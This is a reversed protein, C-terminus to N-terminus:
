QVSEKMSKKHSHYKESVIELDEVPVGEEIGHDFMVDYHTVIGEYVSEHMSNHDNAIHNALQISGGQKAIQKHVESRHTRKPPLKIEHTKGTKEHHIAYHNNTSKPDDSEINHAHSGGHSGVHIPDSGGPGGRGGYKKNIKDTVHSKEGAGYSEHTSVNSVDGTEQLTHMGPICQGDGWQESKVHNACDHKLAKEASASNVDEAEALAQQDEVVEVEEEPEKAEPKMGMLINRTTNLLDDSIGFVKHRPGPTFGETM